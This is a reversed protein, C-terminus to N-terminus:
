VTYAKMRNHLELLVYDLLTATKYDPAWREIFLRKSHRTRPHRLCLLLYLRVLIELRPDYEISEDLEDFIGKIVENLDMKDIFATPDNYTEDTSTVNKYDQTGIADQLEVDADDNITENLSVHFDETKNKYLAEVIKWSMMGAFSAGVEFDPNNLYQSMFALTATTTKDDVEEPPMYQKGTNRKLILSRAYSHCLKFMESWIKMDRSALYQEQLKFLAQETDPKDELKGYFGKKWDPSKVAPKVETDDETLYDAINFDM